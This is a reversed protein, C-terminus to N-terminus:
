RATAADDHHPRIGVQRGRQGPQHAGVPEIDFDGVNPSRPVGPPRGGSLRLPHREDAVLGPGDDDPGRVPQRGVLLRSVILPSATTSSVVSNSPSAVPTRMSGVGAM